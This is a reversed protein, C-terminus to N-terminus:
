NTPLHQPANTTPGAYPTEGRKLETWRAITRRSVPRRRVLSAPLRRMLDGALWAGGWRDRIRWGRRMRFYLAYRAPMTWLVRPFPDNYLSMLCDNRAVHRLYRQQNRGGPDVDHIVLASPLYVIRLGADLVRLGFDKEEGYFAFEERYGGLDLFAERRVLHAFGIFSPVIVPKSARSPQMAAPWPRGDAEAQAFAIAAVSPDADLVQIAHEVAEGSMLRADDDMLLVYGGQANRVLRNRGAIYGAAAPDRLVQPGVARAEDTLQEEVAQVSGDDFVLVEPELRAALALSSLCRNLSARRNKTTIGITLRSPM